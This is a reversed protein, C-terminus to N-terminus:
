RSSAAIFPVFISALITILDIWLNTTQHVRGAADDRVVLKPVVPAVLDHPRLAARLDARKKGDPTMAPLRGDPPDVILSTRQVDDQQNTAASIFVM